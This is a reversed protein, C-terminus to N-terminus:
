SLLLEKSYRKNTIRKTSFVLEVVEKFGDKTLHKGQDILDLVMVFVFFDDRKSTHLPYKEFFPVLKEKLEKRDKVILVWTKDKLSQAHNPKLYGCGLRQQLAELVNKGGPNQSVHFETIVQWRLPLDIRKSFGVYFCGEGDTFGSLYENSIEEKAAQQNDASLANDSLM